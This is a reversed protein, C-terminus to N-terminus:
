GLVKNDEAKEQEKWRLLQKEGNSLTQSLVQPTYILDFTFGAASHETLWGERCRWIMQDIGYFLIRRSLEMEQFIWARKNIASNQIEEQFSKVRKRLHINSVPDDLQVYYVGSLRDHLFTSASNRSSPGAITLLSNVYIEAMKALEQNLDEESDQIICISDIWLYPIDMTQAVKVADKFQQSLSSILFGRKM